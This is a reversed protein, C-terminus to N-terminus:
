LRNLIFGRVEGRFSQRMVKFRIFRNFRYARRHLKTVVARAQEPTKFVKDRCVEDCYEMFERVSSFRPIKLSRCYESM